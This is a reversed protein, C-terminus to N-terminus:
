NLIERAGLFAVFEEERIREVEALGQRFSDRNMAIFALPASEGEIDDFIRRARRCGYESISCFHSLDHGVDDSVSTLQYSSALLTVQVSAGVNESLDFM